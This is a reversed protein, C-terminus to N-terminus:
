YGVKVLFFLFYIFSGFFQCGLLQETDVFISTHLFGPNKALFIYCYYLKRTNKVPYSCITNPNKTQKNYNIFKM